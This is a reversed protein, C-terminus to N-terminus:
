QKRLEAAIFKKAETTLRADATDTGAIKDTM